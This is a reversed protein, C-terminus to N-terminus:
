LKTTAVASSIFEKLADRRLDSTSQSSYRGEAYINISLGKQSAEKINEPKRDRYSIEVFRQGRISVRCDNAGAAKATEISWAALDHMEKNM